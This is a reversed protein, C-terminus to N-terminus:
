GGRWVGGEMVGGEVDEGWAGLMTACERVARGIKSRSQSDGKKQGGMAGAGGCEIVGMKWMRAGHGSCQWVVWVVVNVKLEEVVAM